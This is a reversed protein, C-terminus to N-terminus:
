FIKSSIVIYWRGKGTDDKKKLFVQSMKPIAIDELSANWCNDESSILFINLKVHKRFVSRPQLFLLNTFTSKPYYNKSRQKRKKLSALVTLSVSSSFVPFLIQPENQQVVNTESCKRHFRRLSNRSVHHCITQYIPVLSESPCPVEIKLYNWPTVSSFTYNKCTVAM